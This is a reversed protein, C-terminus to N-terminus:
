NKIQLADDLAHLGHVHCPPKGWPSAPPSPGGARGRGCSVTAVVVSVPCCFLDWVGGLGWVNDTGLFIGLYGEASDNCDKASDRTLGEAVLVPVVGGCPARTGALLVGASWWWWPCGKELAAGAEFRCWCEVLCRDILAALCAELNTIQMKIKISQLIFIISIELYKGYFNMLKSGEYIKLIDLKDM